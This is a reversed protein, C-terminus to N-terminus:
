VWPSHPDGTKDSYRHHKRHDAVWQIVPGEVALSGLVALAIRLPRKARFSGHTFYRHFGITIGFGSLVYFVATIVMDRLHVGWGWSIPVAAAVALLPLVIFIALAAQELRGQQEASVSAPPPPPAPEPMTVQARPLPM